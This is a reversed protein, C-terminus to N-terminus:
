GSPLGLGCALDHMFKLCYMFVEEALRRLQNGHMGTQFAAHDALLIGAHLHHRETRGDDIGVAGVLADLDRSRFLTTYPFLTSRPPRRIMLFFFLLIYSYRCTM